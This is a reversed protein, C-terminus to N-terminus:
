QAEQPTQRPIARNRPLLESLIANGRRERKMRHPDQTKPPRSEIYDLEHLLHQGLLLIPIVFIYSVSRIWPEEFLSATDANEFSYELSLSERGLVGQINRSIM